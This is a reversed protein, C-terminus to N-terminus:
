HVPLDLVQLKGLKITMRCIVKVCGSFIYYTIYETVTKMISRNGGKGVHAQEELFLLQDVLFCDSPNKVFQRLGQMIDEESKDETNMSDYRAKKLYNYAKEFGEKGLIRECEIFIRLTYQYFIKIYKYM